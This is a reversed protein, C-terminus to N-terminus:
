GRRIGYHETIIRGFISKEQINISHHNEELWPKIDNDLSINRDPNKAKIRRIEADFSKVAQMLRNHIASNIEINKEINNASESKTYLLDDFFASDYGKSIAFQAVEELSIGWTMDPLDNKFLKSKPLKSFPINTTPHRPDIEGSLCDHCFLIASESVFFMPNKSTRYGIILAAEFLTVINHKGANLAELGSENFLFYEDDNTSESGEDIFFGSEKLIYGSEKIQQDLSIAFAAENAKTPLDSLGKTDNDAIMKKIENIM